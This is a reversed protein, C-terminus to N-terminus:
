QARALTAVQEVFKAADAGKLPDAVPGIGLPRITGGQILYRHQPGTVKRAGEGPMLFLVYREGAKYAPGVEPSLVQRNALDV